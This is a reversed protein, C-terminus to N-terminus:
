INKVELTQKQHSKALEITEVHKAEHIEVNQSIRRQLCKFITKDQAKIPIYCEVITLGPNLSLQQHWGTSFTEIPRLLIRLLLRLM